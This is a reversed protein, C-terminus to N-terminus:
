KIFSFNLEEMKICTLYWPYRNNEGGEILLHWLSRFRLYMRFTGLIQNYLKTDNIEDQICIFKCTHIHTVTNITLPSWQTIYINQRMALKSCVTSIYKDTKKLSTIIFLSSM